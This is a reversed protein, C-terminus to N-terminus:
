SSNTSFNTAKAFVAIIEAMIGFVAPVIFRSAQWLGEFPVFPLFPLFVLPGVVWYTSGNITLTDTGGIPGGLDLRRQSFHIALTMARGVSPAQTLAVGVTVVGYVLAVLLGWALEGRHTRAWAGIATRPSTM